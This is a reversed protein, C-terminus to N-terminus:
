SALPTTRPLHPPVASAFFPIGELEFVFEFLKGDFAGLVFDEAGDTVFELNELEGDEEIVEIIAQIALNSAEASTQAEPFSARSVSVVAGTAEDQFTVVEGGADEEILWSEPYLTAFGIAENVYPAFGDVASTDGSVVFLGEYQEYRKGDLDEAIIGVVYNGSPAPTEIVTFKESGFTLLGAERAYNEEDSDQSLDTGRELVTFTDGAKPTIQRPAGVGGQGTFGFLQTMEGNRFNMRAPRTAGSDAFTYIGRVQYTPSDDYTEPELLARM